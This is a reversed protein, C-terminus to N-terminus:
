KDSVAPRLQKLNQFEGADDKEGKNIYRYNNVDVPSFQSKLSAPLQWPHLSLASQKNQDIEKIKKEEDNSYRSFYDAM